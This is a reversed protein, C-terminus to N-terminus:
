DMEIIVESPNQPHVRVPVSGGAARMAMGGGMLAKAFAQYPARGPVTVLLTFQMQPVNNISLGTPSVGQIQATGSLGHMRLWAAKEASKKMAMGIGGFVLGMILFTVGTIGLGGVAGGAGHGMEIVDAAGLVAVALAVIGGLFM